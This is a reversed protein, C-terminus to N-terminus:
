ESRFPIILTQYVPVKQNDIRGPIWNPMNSVIRIAETDFAAGMKKLLLVDSLRGDPNVVFQVVVQGSRGAAERSPYRVQRGLYMDLAKSGGPFYPMQDAMVQPTMALKESSAEIVRTINAEEENQRNQAGSTKPELPEVSRTIPIESFDPTATAFTATPYSEESAPLVQFKLTHMEREEGNMKALLNMKFHGALPYIYRNSRRAKRRIGNGFDLTLDLNERYNDIEFILEEGVRMEGIVNVTLLPLREGQKLEYGFEEASREALDNGTFAVNSTPLQSSFTPYSNEVEAPQQFQYWTIGGSLVLIMAALGIGKRIRGKKEQEELKNLYADLQEYPPQVSKM